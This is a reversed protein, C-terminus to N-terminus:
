IKYGNNYPFNNDAQYNSLTSKIKISFSIHSLVSEVSPKIKKINRLPGSISKVAKEFLLLVVVSGLPFGSGCRSFTARVM